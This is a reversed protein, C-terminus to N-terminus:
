AYPTPHGPDLTRFRGYHIETTARGYPTSPYPMAPGLLVTPFGHGGRAMRRHEEEICDPIGHKGPEGVAISGFFFTITTKGQAHEKKVGHKMKV